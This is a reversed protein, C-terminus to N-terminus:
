NENDAFDCAIELIRRSKIDSKTNKLIECSIKKELIKEEKDNKSKFDIKWNGINKGNKGGIRLSTM